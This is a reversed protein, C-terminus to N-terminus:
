GRPAKAPDIPQGNQFVMLSVQPKGTYADLGATGIKSNYNVYEGKNVGITGLGTYAYIHGTKSQIFIVNGFGRYSGSFMVTGARIACVSEDKKANLIVGGAKGGIYVIDSSKVPWVLSSDAKKSSYNHPNSNKLDPVYSSKEEPKKAGSNQGGSQSSSAIATSSSASPIKIKQGVKLSSDGVSENAKQLEAVTIGNRKAIGFWTDGKQVEYVSAVPADGQSKQGASSAKSSSASPIKIKQGVKIDNGTFNNLSKVADVTVGYSKSISYLTEGKKVEHVSDAFVVATGCVLASLFLTKLIIRKM